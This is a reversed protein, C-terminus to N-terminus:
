GTEPGTPVKALPFTLLFSAGKGVQSDVSVHGRHNKVVGYVISLGLGTGKEEDKTTFFPDFIHDMIEQPIGHGTDRIILRAEQRARDLESSVYLRGGDPMAEIANFILNLFCQQLQHEDGVVILPDVCPCTELGINQIDMKHRTLTLAQGLTEWLDVHRYETASQRSFSLLGSVIKGCRELENSMMSLYKKFDRITEPSLDGQELMDTMLGSFTMLGQIPNNIEHVSSAVLKGLSIMRDKQILKQLNEKLENVRREVQLSFKDTVDRWIEIVRLIQGAPDKLPYTVLECYNTGGDPRPHDHIVHASEGSRLTEMLPCGMDPQYRSCPESLGHSVEHCRAGIVAGKPQGVANLFSESAELITFDPNLVVIRENTQEFLFRTEEKEFAVQQQAAKLKENMVFLTQFLRSIHHELIGIGTPRLRILDLLVERNNTLELIFNLGEINFLKRFDNTTFIGMEEALRYGEAEPDIDCVGLISIRFYPFIKRQFLDLFFKCTRGGGVIALNLNIKEHDSENTTAMGM